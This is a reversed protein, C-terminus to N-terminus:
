AARRLGAKGEVFALLPLLTADGRLLLRAQDVPGPMRWGTTAAASFGFRGYFAEDGVLLVPPAGRADAAALAHRILASAVGAGQHVAAVAVPGLLVLPACVGAVSRLTIDWCQVTGIIVDGAKAVCSLAALPTAGDRLRYATRNHRAPGFSADLLSAIAPIDATIAPAIDIM